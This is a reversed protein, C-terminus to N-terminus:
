VDDPHHDRLGFFLLTLLIISGYKPNSVSIQNLGNLSKISFFFFFYVCFLSDIKKLNVSHSSKVSSAENVSHKASNSAVQPAM